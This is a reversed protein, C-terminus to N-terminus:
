RYRRMLGAVVGQVRVREKDVLWSAGAPNTPQFRTRQGELYHKRLFVKKDELSALVMEGDEATTRDEVIILDGDCVHENTMSNGLVRLAYSAKRAIFDPPLNVTEGATTAQIIRAASIQGLIPVEITRVPDGDVLEIGRGQHPTKKLYGKQVLLEIHNYVTAPSSLGFGIGIEKLTPAYGNEDVYRNIYDLIEKQRKTLYM